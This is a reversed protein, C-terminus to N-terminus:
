VTPWNYNLKIKVMINGEPCHSHACVLSSLDIFVYRVDGAISKTAAKGKTRNWDAIVVKRLIWHVICFTLIKATQVGIELREHSLTRNVRTPAHHYVIPCVTAGRSAFADSIAYGLGSAGGTVM